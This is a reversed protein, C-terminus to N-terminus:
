GTAYGVRRSNDRVVHLPNRGPSVSFGHDRLWALVAEGNQRSLQLRNSGDRQSNVAFHVHVTISGRDVEVLAVQTMNLIFSGAQVFM